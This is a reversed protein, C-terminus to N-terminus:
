RDKGMCLVCRKDELRHEGHVIDESSYDNILMVWNITKGYNVTDEEVAAEQSQIM